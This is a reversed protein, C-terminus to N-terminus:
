WPINLGFVGGPLVVNLIKEFIYASAFAIILSAVALKIKERAGCIWMMGFVMPATVLHYGVMTLVSVYIAFLLLLLAPRELDKLRIETHTDPKLKTRLMNLIFEILLLAAIAIAISRPYAAGNNYPGGSAIGQETMSTSIQQFVIAIVIVLFLTILWSIYKTSIM